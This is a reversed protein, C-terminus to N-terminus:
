PATSSSESSTSWARGHNKLMFVSARNMPPGFGSPSYRSAIISPVRRYRTVPVRPVVADRPMWTSAPCPSVGRRMVAYTLSLSRSISASPRNPNTSAAVLGLSGSSARGLDSYVGNLAVHSMLLWDGASRMLGGDRSADPQWATGLVQRGMPYNGLAGVMVHEVVPDDAAQRHASHDEPPPQHDAHGQHQAAAPAALFALFPILKRM